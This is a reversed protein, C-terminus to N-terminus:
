SKTNIGIILQIDYIGEKEFIFFSQYKYKKNNIYLKTNTEDLERINCGKIITKMNYLLKLPKNIDKQEIKFKM